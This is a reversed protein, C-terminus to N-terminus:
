CSTEGKKGKYVVVQRHAVSKIRPCDKTGRPCINGGGKKRMRQRGDKDRIGQEKDGQPLYINTSLIRDRPTKLVIRTTERTTCLCISLIDVSM